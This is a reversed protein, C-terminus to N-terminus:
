PAWRLEFQGIREAQPFRERLATILQPPPPGSFEPHSYLVVAQVKHTDIARLVRGTQESPDELFDFLTRTPNRKGALFYVEPCDPGAYIYNSDGAHAQIAPILREYERARAPDVRLGGSGPLRLPQTQPDPQYFYAMAHLFSPTVRFIAFAFYFALLLGFTLKSVREPISFLAALSLALLPAVYCFYIRASFPFQILTCVATVSLLLMLQQKRLTSVRPNMLVWVAALTAFPIMLLLPAWVSVYVRPDRKSLVFAVALVLGVTVQMWRARMRNQYAALMLGVVVVTSLIMYLAFGTPQRAAFELRRGPLVFVGELFDRLAGARVYPILFLLVPLVAGLFFPLLTRFFVSFRRAATGPVGALERLVCLCALSLAPVLYEVLVVAHVHRRLTLIIGFVFTSIGFVAFASYLGAQPKQGRPDEREFDQELFVLFLVVGAAFYIGSLKFLFSIGCCTGALFLWRRNFTNLFRLVAALGFTAFFLNYWSPLAASYNPVSWVAALLTIAAASTASCFQYAILYVVPIWALFFLYLVIRPALLNEGFLRFAFANLYSLGGTYLEDFDRHPLQGELTRQASQAVAGEDHPVWGRQLLSATYLGSAIWVLILFLWKQGLAPKQARATSPAAIAPSDLVPM